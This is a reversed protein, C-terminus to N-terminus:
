IHILSLYNITRSSTDVPPMVAHDAVGVIVKKLKGWENSALMTM